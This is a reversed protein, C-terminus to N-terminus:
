ENRTMSGSARSLRPRDTRRTRSRLILLFVSTLNWVLATVLDSLHVLKWAGIGGSLSLLVALAAWFLSGSPFVPELNKFPWRKPILFMGWCLLAFSLAAVIFAAAISPMPLFPFPFHIPQMLWNPDHKM